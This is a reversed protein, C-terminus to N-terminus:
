AKGVSHSERVSNLSPVPGFRKGAEQEARVHCVRCLWFVYFPKEYDPHHAQILSDGDLCTECHGPRRILGALVANKLIQRAREHLPFKDRQRAQRTLNNQRKALQACKPSCATRRGDNSSFPEGCAKCARLYLGIAAQADQRDRSLESCSNGTDCPASVHLQTLPVSM